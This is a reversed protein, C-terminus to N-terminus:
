RVIICFGVSSGAEWCGLDITRNLVRENGDLDLESTAYTSYLTNDGANILAGGRKPRYDGGAFNKFAADTLNLVTSNAGTFAADASFACSFFRAENKNGWEAMATGGNGYVVCNVVSASASMVYIGGIGGQNSLILPINSVVTCNVAQCAGNMCIAGRGANNNRLLCNEIVGGTMYAGAGEATYVSPAPTNEIICRSVCGGTMYANAGMAGRGPRANTMLCDVAKGSAIYLNGGKEQTVSTDGGGTLVCNTVMGAELRVNGGADAVSSSTVTGNTVTLNRLVADEDALRFIRAGTKGVKVANRDSAIGEVTVRSAIAPLANEEYTGTAIHVTVGDVDTSCASTVNTLSALARAVTLFPATATGANADSGETSVYIDPESVRIPVVMTEWDGYEGDGDKARIRTPFLGCVDYPHSIQTDTTVLHSSGDGFDLEFTVTGAAGAATCVFDVTNGKLISPHSAPTATYSFSSQDFESCGIDIHSGSIRANGAIDTQSSTSPYRSDDGTDVMPSGLLPTWYEDGDFYSSRNTLPLKTWNVGDANEVTSVCNFFRAGYENRWEAKATGGNGFIVCNIVSASSNNVYVGGVNGEPTNGVITCNVAKAASSNLFLAGRGCRNDRILSNEIVGGTLYAGAGQATYNGNAKPSQEIICRSVTGGTIYASGGIAGNGLLPSTMLCDVVLGGGIYLNGGKGDTISSNGGGTLVCNAVTGNELRVNGGANAAASTTVTGNQVTLNKLAADAHAIRFVRAGSKGIKVATRDAANGEIAIANTVVLGNEPYPGDAVNIRVFKAGSAIAADAKEIANSITAFPHDESGDGDDSGTTAVYFGAGFNATMEFPATPTFTVSAATTSIGNPLDGTWKIFTKGADPTATVTIPTGIAYWATGSPSVSGDDGAAVNGEVASLQWVWELRRNKAPTPHTYTFSTDNGSDLLTGDEDYLKWGICTMRRGSSDISTAGCSVAVAEGAALRYLGHYAPTPTGFNEPFGTIDLRGGKADYGFSGGTGANSYFTNRVTDYLGAIGDADRVCPVFNAVTAGGEIIKFSYLKIGVVAKVTEYLRDVDHLRFLYISPLRETGGAKVFSVTQDNVTFTNDTQNDVYKTSYWIDKETLYEPLTIEVGSQGNSVRYARVKNTKDASDAKIIFAFSSFGTGRTWYIINDHSFDPVEFHAEIDTMYYPSFGTDIYQEQDTVTICEVETYGAPLQGAAQAASVSCFLVVAILLGCFRGKLFRNNRSTIM